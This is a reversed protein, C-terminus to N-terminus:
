VRVNKANMDVVPIRIKCILVCVVLLSDVNNFPFIFSTERVDYFLGFKLHMCVNEFHM